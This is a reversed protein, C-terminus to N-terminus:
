VKQNFNKIHMVKFLEGMQDPEILRKYGSELTKDNLHQFRIDIGNEKLFERQTKIAKNQFFSGLWEFDIHSTLDAEGVHDTIACPEHKYLAQLSDGYNSKSYGYDIILFMGNYNSMLQAYRQQASSYELIDGDQAAPLKPKMPVDFTTQWAHHGNDIFHEAWAGNQFQFQQIPLADFFENAIIICPADNAVDSLHEHWQVEYNQLTKQQKHKLTPSTEILRIAMADHFGPVNATGRLLDNMLTARGPGIEILHFPNPMEMTMWQQVAWIGIIEGFLQSIEPATTFDGDVGLPDNNHYYATLAEAMFEDLRQM